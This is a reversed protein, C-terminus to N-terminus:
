RLLDAISPKYRQEFENFQEVFSQRDAEPKYKIKKLVNELFM